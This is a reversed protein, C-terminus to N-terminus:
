FPEMDDFNNPPEPPEIWTRWRWQHPIDRDEHGANLTCIQEDRNGCRDPRTRIGTANCPINPLGNLPLVAAATGSV